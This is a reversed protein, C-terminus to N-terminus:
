VLASLWHTDALSLVSMSAAYKYLHRGSMAIAWTEMYVARMSFCATVIRHLTPRARAWLGRLVCVCMGRRDCMEAEHRRGMEWCTM